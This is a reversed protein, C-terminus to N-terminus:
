TRCSQIRRAPKYVRAWNLIQILHPLRKRRGTKRCNRYGRIGIWGRGDPRPFGRGCIGHRRQAGSGLNPQADPRLCILWRIKSKWEGFRESMGRSRTLIPEGNGNQAAWRVLHDWIRGVHGLLDSLLLQSIASDGGLL